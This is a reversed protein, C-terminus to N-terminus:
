EDQNEIKSIDPLGPVDHHAKGPLEREPMCEIDPKARIHGRGQEDIEAHRRPEAKQKRRRNCPECTREDAKKRETEPHPADVECYEGDRDGFEGADSEIM